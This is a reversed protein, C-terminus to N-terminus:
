ITPLLGGRYKPVPAKLLFHMPPVKLNGRKRYHVRSSLKEFLVQNM